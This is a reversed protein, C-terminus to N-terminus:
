IEYDTSNSVPSNHPWLEPFIFNLTKRLELKVTSHQVRSVPASDINVYHLISHERGLATEHVMCDIAKVAFPLEATVLHYKQTKTKKAFICAANLHFSAIERNGTEGAVASASTLHSPFTFLRKM